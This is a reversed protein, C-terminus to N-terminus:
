LRKKVNFYEDCLHIEVPRGGFTRESAQQGITRFEQHLQPDELTWDEVVFAIVPRKGDFSVQVSKPSQGDFFGVGRLFAGLARADAETAGKTYYIEEGGAYEIKPGFGRGFRLELFFLVGFQVAFFLALLGLSAVISTGGRRCLTELHADEPLGLSQVESIVKRTHSLYWPNGFAGCVIGALLGILLGLGRPTEPKGLVLVFLVEELISELLIIGYFVFTIRYLKRYPLWLGAILFAAWNFGTGTEAGVLSAQWKKLYYGARPGVFARIEQESLSNM